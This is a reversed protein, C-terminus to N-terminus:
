KATLVVGLKRPQKTSCTPDHASGWSGGTFFIEACAGCSLDYGINRCAIEIDKMTMTAKSDDDMIM